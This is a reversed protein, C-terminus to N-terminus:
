HIRNGARPALLTQPATPRDDDDPIAPSPQTTVHHTPLVFMPSLHYSFHYPTDDIRAGTSETQGIVDVAMNFM